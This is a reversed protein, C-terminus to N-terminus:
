AAQATSAREPFLDAAQLESEARYWDQEASGPEGNRAEWYSYALREVADRYPNLPKEQSKPPIKPAPM